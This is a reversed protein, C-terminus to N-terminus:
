SGDESQAHAALGNRRGSAFPHVALRRQSKSRVAAAPSLAGPFRAVSFNLHGKASSGVSRLRTQRPAKKQKYLHNRDSGRSGRGQVTKYQIM